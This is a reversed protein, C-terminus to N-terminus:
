RSAASRSTSPRSRRASRHRHGQRRGAGEPGGHRRLVRGQRRLGAPPRRRRLAHGRRPCRHRLRGQGHHLRPQRRPRDHGQRHLPLRVADKLRVTGRDPVPLAAAAKASRATALAAGARPTRSSMTPPGSRPPRCAGNRPRRRSWCPRAGGRRGPADAHVLSAPQALRRHGPQRLAGRRGLGARRSGAGLRGRARRGGGHRDLHARGAGDRLPPLDRHRHRGGGLSIFIAPDDRWGNPMGDAGFKKEQAPLRDAPRRRSRVRRRHRRRPPHPPQCQRPRGHPRPCARDYAASGQSGAQHRRPHASLHRLPLPQREHRHRHGRGDPEADGEPARRGAHDPGTQCYGCQSVNLDRWAAQVPHDATRRSARSPRSPRPRGRGLRADPMRARCHRRSPHHLRRVGRRRLRVQHRDPRARRASVLAAAHRSRRRLPARDRERHSHDDACDKKALWSLDPRSGLGIPRRLATASVPDVSSRVARMRRRDPAFALPEWQLKEHSPHAIRM